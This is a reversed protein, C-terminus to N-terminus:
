FELILQVAPKRIHLAPLPALPASAVLAFFAYTWSAFEAIAALLPFALLTEGQLPLSLIGVANALFVAEVVLAADLESSKAAFLAVYIGPFFGDGRELQLRFEFEEGLFEEPPLVFDTAGDDIKPLEAVGLTPQHHIHELPDVLDPKLVL